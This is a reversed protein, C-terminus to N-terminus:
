KHTQKNTKNSEQKKKERETLTHTYTEEHSKTQKTKRKGNTIPNQRNKKKRGKRGLRAVPLTKTSLGLTPGSGGLHSLQTWSAPGGSVERGWTINILSLGGPSRWRLVLVCSCGIALLSWHQVGWALCSALCSCLGM